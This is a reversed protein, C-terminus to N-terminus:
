FGDEDINRYNSTFSQTLKTKEHFKLKKEKNRTLKNGM